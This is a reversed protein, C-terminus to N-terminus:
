LEFLLQSEIQRTKGKYLISSLNITTYERKPLDFFPHLLYCLRLKKGLVGNKSIGEDPNLYIIAGLHVGLEILASIHPSVKNDVIFSGVPDMKFDDRILKDRFYNGIMLLIDGLNIIQNSYIERNADPHARILELYKQSMSKIISAQKNIDLSTKSVSGLSSMLTDLLNMLFRPNGDCLEYITPVGYFLSPNKRSRRGFIKNFQYRFIVIPIIKRFIKDKEEISKPAPNHYSIGKKDLFKSFSPDIIALEKIVYWYYSGKDYKSKLTLKSDIKFSLKLNREFTSEGFFELATSPIQLNKLKNETLIQSFENWKSTCSENYNWTRIIKYDENESANIVDPTIKDVLSIIPSTVLKFYFRQDISRLKDILEFQLWQPSIELEDFCLAWKRNKGECFTHEFSTCVDSISQFYNNFYYEPIKDIENSDAFGFKLKNILNNCSKIRKNLTKQLSQLNPSISEDIDLDQVLLKCLEAEKQLCIEPSYINNIFEFEILDKFTKLTCDLINTAVLFRSIVEKQESSIGAQNYFHDMQKKWQIDSPIYVASFPCIPINDNKQKLYFYGPATLMKLLTTKGSGRPGMLLSHNMQLLEYFQNNTIFTKAIQDFNLYRANFSDNFNPIIM